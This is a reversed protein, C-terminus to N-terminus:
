VYDALYEASQELEQLVSALRHIRSAHEEAAVRFASGGQLYYDRGNPGAADVADIAHRVADAADIVQDFLVDPSTGNSHVTPLQV